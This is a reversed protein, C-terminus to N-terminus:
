KFSPMQGSCSSLLDHFHVCLLILVDECLWLINFRIYYINFLYSINSILHFQFQTKKSIKMEKTVELM